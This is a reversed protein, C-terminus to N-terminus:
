TGILCVHSDFPFNEFSMGCQVNAKFIESYHMMHTSSRYWLYILSEEGFSGSKQIHEANGLYLTPTWINKRDDLDIQFWDLNRSCIYWIFFINCLLNAQAPISKTFLFYFKCVRIDKVLSSHIPLHHFFNCLFWYKQSFWM